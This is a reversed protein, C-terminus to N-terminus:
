SYQVPRGKPCRYCSGHCLIAHAHILKRRVIVDPIDNFLDEVRQPTWHECEFGQIVVIEARKTDTDM